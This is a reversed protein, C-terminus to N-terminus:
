RQVPLLASRSDSRKREYHENGRFTQEMGVTASTGTESITTKTRESVDSGIVQDHGLFL